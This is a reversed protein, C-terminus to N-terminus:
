VTSKSSFFDSIVLQHKGASFTNLYDFDECHRRRRLLSIEM